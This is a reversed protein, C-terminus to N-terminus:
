LFSNFDCIDVLFCELLIDVTRKDVIPAQYWLLKFMDPKPSDKNHLIICDNCLVGLM